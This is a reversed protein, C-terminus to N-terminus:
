LKLRRKENPDVYGPATIWICSTNAAGCRESLTVTGDKRRWYTETDAFKAGFVNQMTITRSASPKGYKDRASTMLLAFSDESVSVLVKKIRQSADMTVTAMGDVDGLYVAGMCWDEECRGGGAGDRVLADRASQTFQAGITYGALDLGRASGAALAFALAIWAFRM